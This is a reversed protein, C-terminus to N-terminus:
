RRSHGCSKAFTSPQLPTHTTSLYSKLPTSFLISNLFPITTPNSDPPSLLTLLSSSPSPSTKGIQTADSGHGMTATTRWTTVLAGGQRPMAGSRSTIIRADSTAKYKHPAREARVSPLAMPQTSSQPLSSLSWCPWYRSRRRRRRRRRRRTAEKM